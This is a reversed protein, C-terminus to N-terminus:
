EVNYFKVPSGTLVHLVESIPRVKKTFDQFTKSGFFENRNALWEAMSPARVIVEHTVGPEGGALIEHLELVGQGDNSAEAAAKMETFAAAYTAPDKVNVYYVVAFQLDFGSPDAILSQGLYSAEQEVNENWTEWIGATNMFKANAFKVFNEQLDAANDSFWCIQHTAAFESSAQDFQFIANASMSKGVETQMFDDWVSVFAAPNDIIVNSCQWTIQQSFSQFSFFIMVLGIFQKKM